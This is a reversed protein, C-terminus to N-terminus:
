ITPWLTEIIQANQRVHQITTVRRRNTRHVRGSVLDVCEVTLIGVRQANQELVWHAIEVTLRAVEQDIAQARFNYLLHRHDENETGAIDFQLRLDVHGIRAVFRPHTVHRFVRRAQAGSEFQNLVRRNHNRRTELGLEDIKARARALAAPDNDSRYYARIGQLAPAYYPIRFVQPEQAPYKQAALVRVQEYAPLGLLEAFARVSLTPM